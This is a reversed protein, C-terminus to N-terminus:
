SADPVWRGTQPCIPFWAWRRGKHVFTCPTSTLRANEFQWAM